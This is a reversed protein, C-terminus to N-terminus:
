FTNNFYVEGGLFSGESDEIEDVKNVSSIVVAKGKV